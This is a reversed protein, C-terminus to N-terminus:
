CTFHALESEEVYWVRDGPRIDFECRVCTGEFRAFFPRSVRQRDPTPGAADRCTECAKPHLEHPCRDM